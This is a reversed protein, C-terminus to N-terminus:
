RTTALRAGRRAGSRTGATPSTAGARMRAAASSSPCRVLSTRARCSNRSSCRPCSSPLASCYFGGGAPATASPSPSCVFLGGVLGVVPGRSGAGIFAVGLVPILALAAARRWAAPAVLLVFIALLLGTAAGRALGIPGAQAYLALRGPLVERAGGTILSQILVLSGLAATGLTLGIWVNTHARSRALLIGGILFSVNEALFLQLKYGGYAQDTSAGLRALMWVALGLTTLVPGSVILRLPLANEERLLALLIALVLWGALFLEVSNNPFPNTGVLAIVVAPLGWLALPYAVSRSALFAVVVALCLAIALQPRLLTPFALLPGILAAWGVRHAPPLEHRKRRATPFRNPLKSGSDQKM